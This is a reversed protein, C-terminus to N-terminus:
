LCVFFEDIAHFGLRTRFNVNWTNGEPRGRTIIFNFPDATLIPLGMAQAKKVFVSDYGIRMSAFGGVAEFIDRHFMISGGAGVIWSDPVFKDRLFNINGTREDRAVPNNKTIIANQGSAKVYSLHTKLYNPFYIDDDDMLAVYESVTKSYAYNNRDGLEGPVLDSRIIELSDYNTLSKRLHTEDADGYGQIIIVIKNIKVTQENINKCFRDILTPRCSLMIIDVKPLENLDYRHLNAYAADYLTTLKKNM